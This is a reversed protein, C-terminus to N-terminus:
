SHLIRNIVHSKLHVSDGEFNQKIVMFIANKSVSTTIVNSMGVSIMIYRTTMVNSIM